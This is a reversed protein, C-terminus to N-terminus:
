ESCVAYGAILLVVEERIYWESRVAYGPWSSLCSERKYIDSVAYLTGREINLLERRVAYSGM